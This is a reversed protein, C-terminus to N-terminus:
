ARRFLSLFMTLLSKGKPTPKKTIIPPSVPKSVPTSPQTPKNALMKCQELAVKVRGPSIPTKSQNGYYGTGNPTPFSAWEKALNTIMTNTALKGAIYDDIGRYYLLYCAMRDQMAEDFKDNLSVKLAKRIKRLTTRVIQYRGIASSNWTNKPHALMKTQLAEIERISMTVLNVDGGTYAGYALTENYGRGKDTGETFGILDLLPRYKYHPDSM